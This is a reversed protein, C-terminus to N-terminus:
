LAVELGRVLIQIGNFVVHGIVPVFLNKSYHYAGGLVLGFAVFLGFAILEGGSGVSVTSHIVAFLVSPVAIGFAPHSGDTLQRQLLGRFFLEEMPVAVVSSVVFLVLYFLPDSAQGAASEAPSVDLLAFLVTAAVTVVMLGLGVATGYFVTWQTCARLRFYSRWRQRHALVFVGAPLGFGLLHLSVTNVFLRGLSGPGGVPVVAGLVAAASRSLAMAVAFLWLVVATAVTGRTVPTRISPPLRAVLPEPEPVSGDTRDM